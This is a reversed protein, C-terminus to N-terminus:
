AQGRVKTKPHAACLQGLSELRASGLGDGALRLTPNMGRRTGMRLLLPLGHKRCLPLLVANLIFAATPAVEELATTPVMVHPTAYTFTHPTSCSLYEPRLTVICRELLVSLGELTLTTDTAELTRLVSPWGRPELLADLELAARYRPPRPPPALCAQLQRSSFFPAHSTVVYKLKALRLVKENFKAGDQSAYRIFSAM